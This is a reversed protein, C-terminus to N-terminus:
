KVSSLPVIKISIIGMRTDPRDPRHTPTTAIKEL